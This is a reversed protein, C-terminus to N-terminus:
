EFFIVVSQGSDWKPDYGANILEQHIEETLDDVEIEKLGTDLELDSFDVEAAKHGMRVARNIAAVVRSRIEDPINQRAIASAEMAKTAPMLREPEEMLLTSELRSVIEANMSRGSRTAADLIKAHVVRPLRLATKIIEEEM